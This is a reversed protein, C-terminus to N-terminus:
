SRYSAQCFSSQIDNIKPQSYDKLAKAVPDAMDTNVAAAEEALKEKYAQLRTRM